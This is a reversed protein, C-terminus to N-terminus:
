LSVLYKGIRLIMKRYSSNLEGSCPEVIIWNYDYYYTREGYIFREYVTGANHEYPCDNWDDGYYSNSPKLWAPTQGISDKYDKNTWGWDDTKFGLFFRVTNGRIEFDIIRGIVRKM